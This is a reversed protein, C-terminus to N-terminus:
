NPTANRLIESQQRLRALFARVAQNEKNRRITREIMDRVDRFPIQFPPKRDLVKILHFGMSSEIIASIQGPQLAFAAEAVPGIVQSRTIYGMDGGKASSPDDSHELAILAFDSGRVLDAEIAQIRALAAERPSADTVAVLIHQCRVQGDRIFDEPHQTYFAKLEPDGVRVGRIVEDQLYRRIALAVRIHETLQAETLQVRGLYNQFAGADGIRTKLKALTDAVQRNHVKIQLAQTQAIILERDILYDLFENASVAPDANLFAQDDVIPMAAYLLRMHAALEERTIVAGNVVALSHQDISLDQSIGVAPCLAVAGMIMLAQTLSFIRKM